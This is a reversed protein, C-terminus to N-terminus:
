QMALIKAAGAYKVQQPSARTTLEGYCLGVSLMLSFQDDPPVNDIKLDFRQQDCGRNV